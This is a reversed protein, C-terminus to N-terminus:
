DPLRALRELREPAAASGLDRAKQYWAQAVGVDATIGGIANLQRLVLPDYTEALAFAADADGAEAAPRLMMRAAGISGNAMYAAGSRAMAAAEGADLRQAPLGAPPAAAPTSRGTWELRLTKRDTVTGDALHVELTLDFAGTFARPPTVAVAALDELSLQWLNFGVQTGTSLRSGPAFGDVMVMAGPSADTVSVTLEAAEDRQRPEAAGVTLQGSGARSWEPGPLKQEHPVGAAAPSTSPPAPLPVVAVSRDAEPEPQDPQSSRLAVPPAPAHPASGALQYGGAGVATLMAVGAIPIVLRHKRGGTSPAVPLRRPPALKHPLNAVAVDGEGSSPRRSRKWPTRETGTAGPPAAESTRMAASTAEHGFPRVAQQSLESPGDAPDRVTTRM